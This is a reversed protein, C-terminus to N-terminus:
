LLRLFSLSKVKFVILKKFLTKLCSSFFEVTEVKKLSRDSSKTSYKTFNSNSGLFKWSIIILKNFFLFDTVSIMLVYM